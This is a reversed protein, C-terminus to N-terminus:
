KSGAWPSAVKTSSLNERQVADTGTRIQTLECGYMSSVKTFAGLSTSLNLKLM